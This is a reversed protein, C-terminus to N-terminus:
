CKKICYLKCLIYLDNSVPGFKVGRIEQGTNSGITSEEKFTAYNSSVSVDWKMSLAIQVANLIMLIFIM